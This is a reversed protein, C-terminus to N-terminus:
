LFLGVRLEWNGRDTFVFHRASSSHNPAVPVGDFAPVQIVCMYKFTCTVEAIRGASLFLLIATVLINQRAQPM